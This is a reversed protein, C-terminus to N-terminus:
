RDARLSDAPNVTAARRAPAYSALTVLLGVACALTLYTAADTAPVEFLLGKMVRSSAVALTLGAALGAAAYAASEGLMLRVVSGPNAGLAMRIGIERRRRAVGFAVVGYVGIVGLALGTIAFAALLTLLLRPRALTAGVMTRM